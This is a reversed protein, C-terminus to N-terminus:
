PTDTYRAVGALLLYLALAVILVIVILGAWDRFRM